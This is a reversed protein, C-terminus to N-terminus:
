IDSNEFLCMIDPFSDENILKPKLEVAYQGADVKFLRHFPTKRHSSDRSSGIPAM